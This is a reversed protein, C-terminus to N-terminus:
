RATRQMAQNPREYPIILVTDKCTWEARVRKALDYGGALATQKFWYVHIEDKSVVEIQRPKAKRVVGSESCAAIAFRIDESSVDDAHGSVRIGDVTTACSAMTLFGASMLLGTARAM